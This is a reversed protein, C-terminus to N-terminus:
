SDIRDARARSHIASSIRGDAALTGDTVELSLRYGPAGDLRNREWTLTKGAVQPRTVVEAPETGLSQYDRLVRISSLVAQKPVLSHTAIRM